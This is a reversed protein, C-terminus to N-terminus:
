ITSWKCKALYHPLLFELWLCWGVMLTSINEIGFKSM